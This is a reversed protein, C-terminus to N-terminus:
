TLTLTPIGYTDAFQKEIQCWASDEWGDGYVIFDSLALKTLSLGLCEGMLLAGTGCLYPDMWKTFVKYKNFIATRVQELIEEQQAYIESRKRGEVPVSIYVKKAM